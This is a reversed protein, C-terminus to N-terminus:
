QKTEIIDSFKELDESLASLLAQVMEPDEESSESGSESNLELQPQRSHLAIRLFEEDDIIDYLPLHESLVIHFTPFEVVTKFSLAERLTQDQKVVIYKKLTETEVRVTLQWLIIWTETKPEKETYASYRPAFEPKCTLSNLLSSLMGTDTMKSSVVVLPNKNKKEPFIFDFIWEVRWSIFNGNIIFKSTNQKRRKLLSPMYRLDIGFKKASELLVEWRYGKAEHLNSNLGLKRRAFERCEVRENVNELFDYDKVLTDDNM